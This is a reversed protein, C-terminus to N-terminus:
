GAPTVGAQRPTHIKIAAARSGARLLCFGIYSMSVIVNATTIIEASTMQTCFRWLKDLHLTMMSLTAAGQKRAKRVSVVSPTQTKTSTLHLHRRYLRDHGLWLFCCHIEFAAKAVPFLRQQLLTM